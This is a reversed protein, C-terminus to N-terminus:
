FRSRQSELLDLERTLEDIESNCEQLQHLIEKLGRLIHARLALAGDLEEQLATSENAGLRRVERRLEVVRADAADYSAELSLSRQRIVQCREVAEFLEGEKQAIEQELDGADRFVGRDKTNLVNINYAHAPHRFAYMQSYYDRRPVARSISNDVDAELEIISARM